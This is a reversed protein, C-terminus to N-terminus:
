VDDELGEDLADVTGKIAQRTQDQSSTRYLADVLRELAPDDLAERPNWDYAIGHMARIRSALGVFDSKNIRSLEFHRLEDFKKFPFAYVGRSHLESKCKDSFDPTVAFYAMGPFRDGSFFRFLNHFAKQQYAKNGLNSIVDEFEDFILVLGRLGAARAITDLDVLGGWAQAHDQADFVFVGDRYFDREARVDVFPRRPMAVLAAYLGARVNKFDSPSSLWGEVVDRTEQKTAFMWARLAVFMASTDLTESFSWTGDDSIEERIELAEDDLSDLDVDRYADFLAGVGVRACEPLEVSRAIAGFITDMRNFRVGNLADLTAYAVAYGSALAEERVVNLLHSKGAGYNARVLLAGARDDAPRDLSKELDRLESQRGVTFHRVWGKPPIGKRLAEIAAEADSRRITLRRTDSSM